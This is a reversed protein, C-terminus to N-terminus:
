PGDRLKEIIVQKKKIQGELSEIRDELSPMLAKAYVNIDHPRDNSRNAILAKTALIEPQFFRKFERYDSEVTEGRNQKETRKQPSKNDGERQNVQNENVDQIMVAQETKRLTRKQKVKVEHIANEKKAEYM